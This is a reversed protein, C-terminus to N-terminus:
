QATAPPAFRVGTLREIEIVISHADIGAELRENEAELLEGQVVRWELYDYRGLEYARRTDELAHELRPIVDATLRGALQLNHNLEQHLVFLATEIRIRSARMEAQTRAVEARAEAINGQNRNRIPLPVVLGGVLGFDDTAEYRRVGASVIWSPRSRARALELEAEDLRQQSAFRMLEPNEEVRALLNEFPELAPLTEVNGSVAVFDPETAGWQASLRHYASLLEHEYDEHLLEARALDAEARSLEAELSRGAAVRERVVSVTQQALEVARAATALRGQYALSALFRRATEAAVDLRAIGADTKQLSVGARAADVIRERVGHELIWALTVTTEASELGRYSGTGFADQVTVGLEPNPRVGAQQLRGQAADVQFGSALLDPNAALTRSLAEPLGISPARASSELQASVGSALLALCLSACSSRAIPGWM